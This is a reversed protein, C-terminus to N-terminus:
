PTGDLGVSFSAIVEESEETIRRDGDKFEQRTQETVVIYLGHPRVSDGSRLLNVDVLHDVEPHSLPTRETM